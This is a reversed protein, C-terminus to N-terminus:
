QGQGAAAPAATMASGGMLANIWPAVSAVKTYVGYKDKRACGEGWSVVGILTPSAAGNRVVLPGGSDGQCADRGKDRDGACLMRDTIKGQYSAANNCTATDVLPLNAHLLEESGRGGEIISGWGSVNATTGTAPTTKAVEAPVGVSSKKELRIVAVDYDLTTPNWLPHLFIASVNLREGEHKYFQAGAVVDVRDAERRVTSNDLCHAATVVLDKAIFTGGCFQDRMDAPGYGKILAVQHLFNKLDNIPEGGVIRPDIFVAAEVHERVAKSMGDMDRDIGRQIDKVADSLPASLADGVLCTSALLVATLTRLMTIEEQQLLSRLM